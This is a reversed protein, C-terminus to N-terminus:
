ADGPINTEIWSAIAAFDYKGSDNMKQLENAQKDTMNLDIILDIPLNFRSHCYHDKYTADNFKDWTCGTIECLVGLCCHITQSDIWNKLKNYGQKYKDSRLAELWRNKISLKM